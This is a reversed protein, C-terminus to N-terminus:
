KGKSKKEVKKSESFSKSAKLVRLFESTIEEQVNRDNGFLVPEYFRDIETQKLQKYGLSTAMESLLDLLFSNSSEFNPSKANLTDLYERWANRVRRDDQFVVDILNLADVRERPILPNKRTRMLTFFLNMKADRKAKRNQYVIGMGWLIFPTIAVALIQTITLILEVKM